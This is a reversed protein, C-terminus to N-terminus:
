SRHCELQVATSAPGPPVATSSKFFSGLSRKAKKSTSPEAEGASLLVADTTSAQVRKEKRAVQEMEIKVRAKIDPVKEASMYDTKFRPDIFSTIDLLEQTAPDSYKNEMYGLVLSKIKKTLATDEDKAALTSTKLLHLVPKLYSVSAYAEGSLADTFEQLPRLANNISELVEIDQWSPVLHRTKRDESLVQSLAKRQELVRGIMKQRSGWRTPCETILSHEPLHLERQAESLAAKKKWSHSFHCVLSRYLGTARNIRDKVTKEKLANEIALHLRHGFCQLRTWHNLEVAKVVNSGNDTTICTQDEEKLGWNSLSERLGHAINEGTHDAPFYVTQLCHSKLEFDDNIFHVTLSLYPETTRSSWLDTTTAYYEVNKLETELKNRCQTYMEPIAVQSFYTRSPIAYRKDLTRILKKFGENSVTNISVM